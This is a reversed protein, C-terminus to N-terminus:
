GGADESGIVVLHCRSSKMLELYTREKRQKAVLQTGDTDAPRGEVGGRGAFLAGMTVDIAIQLGNWLPLDHAVIELNEADRAPLDSERKCATPL